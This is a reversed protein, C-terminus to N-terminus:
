FNITRNLLEILEDETDYHFVLLQVQHHHNTGSRYLKKGIDRCRYKVFTTDVSVSIKNNERVHRIFNFDHILIYSLEIRLVCSIM